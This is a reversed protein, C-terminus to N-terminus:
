KKRRKMGGALISATLQEEIDKNKNELPNFLAGHIENIKKQTHELNQLSAKIDNVDQNTQSGSPQSTNETTTSGISYDVGEEMIMSNLEWERDYEDAAMANLENEWFEPETMERNPDKNPDKNPLTNM